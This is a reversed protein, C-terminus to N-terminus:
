RKKNPSTTASLALRKKDEWQKQWHKACLGRARHIAGCGEIECFRPEPKHLLHHHKTCLWIVELPKAYDPHHREGKESCGKISCPNVKPIKYKAIARVLGRYKRERDNRHKRAWERNQIRKDEKNKYPM